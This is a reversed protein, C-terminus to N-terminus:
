VTLSVTRLLSGVFLSPVTTFSPKMVTTCGGTGPKEQVGRRASVSPFILKSLAGVTAPVSGM